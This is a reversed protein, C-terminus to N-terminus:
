THIGSSTSIDDLEDTQPQDLVAFVTRAMPENTRIPWGHTPSISHFHEPLDRLTPLTRQRIQIHIAYGQQKYDKNAVQFTQVRPPSLPLSHRGRHHNGFM